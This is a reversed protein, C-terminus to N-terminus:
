TSAERVATRLRAFYDRQPELSFKAAIDAETLEASLSDVAFVVNAQDFTIRVDPGYTRQIAEIHDQNGDFHCVLRDFNLDALYVPVGYGFRLTEQRYGGEALTNGLQDIVRSWAPYSLVFPCEFSRAYHNLQDGGPFLSPCLFLEVGSAVQTEFAEPFNMDFCIGGGVTVGQWDIPQQRGGPVVGQVLEGETPFMKAYRGLVAGTASVLYFCNFFKGDEEVLVPVTVAISNQRACELLVACAAQWDTLASEAISLREPHAFGDGRYKTLAEPLVALEAGMRAALSVWRCADELKAAFSDFDRSSLAIAAIRRVNM